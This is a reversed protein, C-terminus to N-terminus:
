KMTKMVSRGRYSLNKLLEPLKHLFYKPFAKEKMAQQNLLWRKIKKEKFVKFGFIKRSYHTITQSLGIM